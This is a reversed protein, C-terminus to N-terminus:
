GIFYIEIKIKSNQKYNRFQVSYSQKEMRGTAVQM